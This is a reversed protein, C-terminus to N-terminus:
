YCKEKRESSLRMLSELVNRESFKEKSIRENRTEVLNSRLKDMGNNIDIDDIVDPDIVENLLRSYHSMSSYSLLSETDGGYNPFYDYNKRFIDKLNDCEVSLGEKSAQLKFIESLEDSTYGDCIFTWPFRRQLGENARMLNEEIKDKYGAFIIVIEGKHESMFQVMTALVEKGPSDREDTSLSYAEDVFMVKGLCSNLQELTIKDSWGVYKGVFDARSLARFNDDQGDNGEREEKEEREKGEGQGDVAEQEDEGSRETWSRLYVYLSYIILILGLIIGIFWYPGIKNYTWSSASGIYSLATSLVTFGLVISIPGMSSIFSKAKEVTGNVHKVNKHRKLFGMSTYINALAKAIETKGVGPPGYLLVNSYDNVNRGRSFKGLIYVIQEAVMDKVRRNGIMSNLHRLSHIFKGTHAIYNMYKPKVEQRWSRELSSILSSLPSKDEM